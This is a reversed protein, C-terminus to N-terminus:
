GRSALPGFFDQGCNASKEKKLTEVAMRGVQPCAQPHVRSSSCSSHLLDQVSATFPL